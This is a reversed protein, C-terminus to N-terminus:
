QYERESVKRTIIGVRDINSARIMDFVEVVDGYTVSEDARLMVGDEPKRQHHQELAQQLSEPEIRRNSLYLRGDKDLEVLLSEREIEEAQVAEPLNLQIGEKIAPAVLIFIILLTLMVDVLNIVNIETMSRLRHRRREKLTSLNM